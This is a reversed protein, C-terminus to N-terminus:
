RKGLGPLGGQAVRRVIGGRSRSLVGRARLRGRGRMIQFRRRPHRPWPLSSLGPRGPKLLVRIRQWGEPSLHGRTWIEHMQAKEEPRLPLILDAARLIRVLRTYDAIQGELNTCEKRYGRYSITGRYLSDM